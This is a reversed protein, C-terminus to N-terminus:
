YENDMLPNSPSTSYLIYHEIAERHITEVKPYEISYYFPERYGILNDM